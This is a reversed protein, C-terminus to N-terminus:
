GGFKAEKLDFPVKEVGVGTKTLAGSSVPM